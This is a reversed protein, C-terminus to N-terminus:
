YEYKEIIEKQCAKSLTVFRASFGGVRVIIHQNEEPKKLAEVLMQKNMVNGQFIHGGKQVYSM